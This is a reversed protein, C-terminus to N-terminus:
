PQVRHYQTVTVEVPEVESIRSLTNSMDFGDHSYYYYNFNYYKDGFRIVSHCYEGGGEYGGKQEMLEYEGLESELTPIIDYHDNKLLVSGLVYDESFNSENIFKTIVEKVRGVSM